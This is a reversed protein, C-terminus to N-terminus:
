ASEQAKERPIHEVYIYIQAKLDGLQHQILPLVEDWQLGGKGAGIRPMSVSTLKEKTIIKKLAHLAHNVHAVSAKGTRTGHGYGGEQTLLNVIWVREQNKWLWADGPKPHQVHCWHHFDKHMIPFVERLTKALGGDMPDNPAVGHAIAQTSTLLIDGRVEHIM